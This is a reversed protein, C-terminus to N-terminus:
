ESTTNYLGRMTAKLLTWFAHVSITLYRGIPAHSLTSSTEFGFTYVKNSEPCESCLNATAQDGLVWSVMQSGHVQTAVENNAFCGVCRPYRRGRLQVVSGKIKTVAVFDDIHAFLLIRAGDITVTWMSKEFGVTACREKALFASMITHWARAASPMGYRPKLLCYEYLPDEDYACLAELL